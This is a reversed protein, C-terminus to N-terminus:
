KKGSNMYLDVTSCGMPIDKGILINEFTGQLTDVEGSVAASTLIQAPTEFTAKALVSKKNKVLGHRSMGDVQGRLCMTDAILMIHRDDVDLGQESLVHQLETFIKYRAAEIGLVEEIEIINNTQIRTKSIGPIELIKSLNSGDTEIKWEDTDKIHKVSTKSINKVGNILTKKLKERAKYIDLIPEKYTILITNDNQTIVSKKNTLLDIVHQINIRRNNLKNVDFVLKIWLKEKTDVKISTTVQQIETPLIKYGIDIAATKSNKIDDELYIDMVPTKISNRDNLIEELRPLGLTVNKVSTGAHHFTRLTMQTGPEGLSQATIIGISNGPDIKANNYLRLAKECVQKVGEKSLKSKNIASITTERLKPNFTKTYKKLIDDINDDKSRKSKDIIYQSTILRNINFAEGHDSKSVDIGDEGYLFQIIFGYTDRITGDYEVRIDGLSNILRRQLYGSAQTRVATDVLGDRGSMTHFFFELPSLGDRYNSTVFGHSIVGNDDPKFFSLVRDNNVTNKIRDGHITQQGLMGTMQKVQLMSGRAGTNAMIKGSNNHTLSKNIIEQCENNMSALKNLIEMELTDKQDKGMSAKLEGSNYLEISKDCEQYVIETLDNIKKDVNNPTVLDNYGYSFGYMNMFEKVVLLVNNLFKSGIISGYDKTIRHLISDQKEAGITQVDIVGSILEGNKIVVDNGKGNTESDWKSTQTYNFDKPLLLSFLQKGTYGHKKPKPITGHYNGFMALNCFEQKSLVTDDKTLLYAGTVYDRDAGIIPFGYRPSIIQDQVRMLLIAEARAEESQLVHMNMEDGDFDANYPTCVAPHLRFTNGPLVKVYHAMISMRHLSPQRNFIVIDGDVLHREVKYGNEIVDAIANLDSIYDVRMRVNDPRVIYNVGPHKNHGNRIMNKIKEINWDTVIEPITLTMAINQPVGVQSTDINPDPSIVSRSSFDVRKGALSSRFRGEKGSLRKYLTNLSRGSRHVSPPIGAIENNILTACHFQLLGNLDNIILIPTGSDLSQKIRKNVKLIDHLKHTLDDESTTNGQLVSPRVQLPPVPLITTIMWEPKISKHYGMLMIDSQIMRSFKERIIGPPIYEDNERYFSYPKKISIEIKERGCHPCNTVKKAKDIITKPINKNKFINYAHDDTKISSLKDLESQPLLLRSCYHCISSLLKYINDIYSIHCVPVSLSIHGFHGTCRDGTNNCTMCIESSYIAGMRRDLLGGEVYKHDMDYEELSTVEMVSYKLIEEPSWLSFSISDLLKSDM